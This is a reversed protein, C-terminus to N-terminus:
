SSKRALFKDVLEFTAGTDPQWYSVGKIYVPSGPVMSTEIESANVDKAIKALGLMEKLTLNTRTSERIESILGPLKFITGLSVAQDAFTKLFKQQREIRGIDGERGRYRVYQLAKDGDLVQEGPQLDISEAPYYMRKEVDIRVGGLIDVIDKFGEFDVEVYKNVPVGLFESVAEAMLEPGGFAHAHNIKTYGHGPVEAYTDRPISLLSVKKTEMDIFAVIITDARAPEEGRSDVGMLLLTLKQSDNDTVPPAEGTGSTGSDAISLGESLWSDALQYGLYGLSVFLVMLLFFVHLWPRPKKRARRGPGARADGWFKTELDYEDV